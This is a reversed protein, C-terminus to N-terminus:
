NCTYGKSTMTNKYNDVNLIYKDDLNDELYDSPLTKKSELKSIDYVDSINVERSDRNCNATETLSKFIKTNNVAEEPADECITNFENDDDFEYYKETYEYGVLKNDKDLSIIHEVRKRSHFLYQEMSCSLKTKVSVTSDEKKDTKEEKDGCGTIIFLSTFVLLSLLLKKKM